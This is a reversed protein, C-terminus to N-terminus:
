RFPMGYRRGTEGNFHGSVWEDMRGGMGLHSGMGEDMGRGGRGYWCGIWGEM